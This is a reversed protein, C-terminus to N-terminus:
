LLVQPPSTRAGQEQDYSCQVAFRETRGLTRATVEVTMSYSYEPRKSAGGPKNRVLDRVKTETIELGPIRPLAVGAAIECYKAAFRPPLSEDPTSLDKKQANQALAPGIVSLGAVLMLLLRMM